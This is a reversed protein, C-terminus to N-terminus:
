NNKAILKNNIYISKNLFIDYLNTVRLYGYPNFNSFPNENNDKSIRLKNKFKESIESIPM